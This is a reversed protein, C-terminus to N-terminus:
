SQQEKKRRCLRPIKPDIGAAARMMESKQRRRYKIDLHQSRFGRGACEMVLKFTVRDITVTSQQAAIPRPSNLLEMFRPVGGDIVSFKGKEKMRFANERSERKDSSSRGRACVFMMFRGWL